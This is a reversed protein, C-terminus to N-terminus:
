SGIKPERLIEAARNRFQDKWVTGGPLVLKSTQMVDGRVCRSSGVVGAHQLRSIFSRHTKGWGSMLRAKPEEPRAHTHYSRRDLGRDILDNLPFYQPYGEAGARQSRGVLSHHTNGWDSTFGSIPEEPRLLVPRVVRSSRRKLSQDQSTSTVEGSMTVHLPSTPPRHSTLCVTSHSPPATLCGGAPVATTSTLCRGQFLSPKRPEVIPITDSM